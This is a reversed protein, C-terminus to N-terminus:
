TCKGGATSKFSSFLCWAKIEMQLESRKERGTAIASVQLLATHFSKERTPRTSRLSKERKAKIQVNSRGTKRSINELCM